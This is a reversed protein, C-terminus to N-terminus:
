TQAYEETSQENTLRRATEILELVMEIGLDDHSFGHAIANRYKHLDTLKLYEDGSIVGLYRAQDLVYSASTIGPRSVGENSVLARIAAECASWALMFAAEPIDSQLAKEAQEIRQLISESEFSRAGAPADRSEPESVLILEFTWDPKSDIINALESIRRDAALSSRSKVEIVKSEGGKRVVLDAQFNPFFDLLVETSVDYGKSRYEQATKLALLYEANTANSILIRGGSEPRRNSQTDWVLRVARELDQRWEHFRQRRRTQSSVPAQEMILEFPIPM